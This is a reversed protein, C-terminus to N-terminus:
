NQFPPSTPIRWGEKHTWTYLQGMDAPYVEIRELQSPPRRPGNDPHSEEVLATTGRRALVLHDFVDYLPTTNSDIPLTMRRLEPCPWQSGGDETTQPSSLYSVLPYTHRWFRDGIITRLHPITSLFENPPPNPLPPVARLTTSSLYATVDMMEPGTPSSTTDSIRQEVNRFMEGFSCLADKSRQSILGATSQLDNGQFGILIKPEVVQPDPYMPDGVSELLNWESIDERVRDSLWAVPDGETYSVNLNRTPRLPNELLAALSTVFKRDLYAEDDAPHVVLRDVNPAEISLVLFHVLPRPISSLILSSLSSLPVVTGKTDRLIPDSSGIWGKLELHRLHPSLSLVTTLRYQSPLQSPQLRHLRLEVLGSLRPSNWPIPVGNLSVVKFPPGDNNLQPVVIREGWNYADRDDFQIRTLSPMPAVLFKFVTKAAKGSFFISRWRHAQALLLSMRGAAKRGFNGEFHIICRFDLPGTPNRDLLRKICATTGHPSVETWLSPIGEVLQLWRKSVICLEFRRTCQEGPPISELLTQTVLELPLRDMRQLSRCDQDSPTDWPM